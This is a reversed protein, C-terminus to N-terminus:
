TKGLTYPRFRLNRAPPSTTSTELVPESGTTPLQTLRKVGSPPSCNGNAVVVQRRVKSRILQESYQSVNLSCPVAHSVVPVGFQGERRRLTMHSAHPTVHDRHSTMHDEAARSYHSGRNNTVSTPSSSSSSGATSVPHLSLSVRPLHESSLSPTHNFTSEPLPLPTRHTQHRHTLLSPPSPPLPEISNDVVPWIVARQKMSRTLRITDMEEEWQEGGEVAEEVCVDSSEGETQSLLSSVLLSSELELIEQQCNLMRKKVRERKQVMYVLNRAKELNQRIYIIKLFNPDGELGYQSGLALEAKLGASVTEIPLHSLLPRNHLSARKLRWYNYLLTCIKLPLSLSHALTDPSTYTHFQERVQQLQSYHSMHKKQPSHSPPKTTPSHHLPSHKPCYSEHIVGNNRVDLRTHTELDSSFACTIHYATVCHPHSCQVCAGGKKRCVCCVLNWRSAPIDETNTIPEMKEANGIKVEPIWLACSLHAWNTNGPRVRKLAGGSNLCLVCPTDQEGIFCTKCLWRGRPITPLGYCAQHVCLNCMDCFIMDNTDESERDRCVDCVTEEDYEIGLTEDTVVACAMNQQCKTELAVIADRFTDESLGDPGALARFKRQLNVQELWNVDMDDLDYEVYRSETTEETYLSPPMRLDKPFEPSNDILRAAPKPMQEPSVCVQVGVEWERRWAEKVTFYSSSDMQLSDPLKMASILDSRFLKEPREEEVFPASGLLLRTHAM